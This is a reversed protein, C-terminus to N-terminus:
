FLPIGLTQGHDRWFQRGDGRNELDHCRARAAASRRPRHRPSRRRPHDSAGLGALWLRQAGIEAVQPRGRRAEEIQNSKLRRLGSLLRAVGDGIVEITAIPSTSPSCPPGTMAPRSAKKLALAASSSASTSFMAGLLLAFEMLTAEASCSCRAMLALRASLNRRKRTDTAASKRCPPSGAKARTNSRRPALDAGRLPEVALRPRGELRRALTSAPLSGTGAGQENAPKRVTDIRRRCLRRAATPSLQGAARDDQGFRRQMWRLDLREFEDAVM